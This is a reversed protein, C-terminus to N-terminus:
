VVGNISELFLYISKLNDVNYFHVKCTIFDVKSLILRVYIIMNM